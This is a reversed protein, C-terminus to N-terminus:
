ASLNEMQNEALENLEYKDKEVAEAIERAVIIAALHTVVEYIGFSEDIADPGCMGHWESEAYELVDGPVEQCVQMAKGYYIVWDWESAEHAIEFADLADLEAQFSEWAPITNEKPLEPMYDQAVDEAREIIAQYTIQM